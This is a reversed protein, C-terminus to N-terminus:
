RVVNIVQMVGEFFFFFIVHVHERLQSIGAPNTRKPQDKKSNRDAANKPGPPPSTLNKGM